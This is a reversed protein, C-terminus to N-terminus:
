YMINPSEDFNYANGTLFLKGFRCNPADNWIKDFNYTETPKSGGVMEPLSDQKIQRRRRFAASTM